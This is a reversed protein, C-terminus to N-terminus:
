RPSLYQNMSTQTFYVLNNKLRPSKNSKLPPLWSMFARLKYFRCFEDSLDTEIQRRRDSSTTSDDDSGDDLPSVVNRVTEISRNALVHSMIPRYGDLEILKPTNTTSDDWEDDDEDNDNLNATLFDM